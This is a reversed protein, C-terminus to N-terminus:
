SVAERVLQLIEKTAPLSSEEVVAVVEDPTLEFRDKLQRALEYHDPDEDQELAEELWDYAEHQQGSWNRKINAM